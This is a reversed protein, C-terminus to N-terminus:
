SQSGQTGAGSLRGPEIPFSFLLRVHQGLGQVRETAGSGIRSRMSDLGLPEGSRFLIQVDAGASIPRPIEAYRLGCYIQNIGKHRGQNVIRRLESPMGAASPSRTSESVEEICIWENRWPWCWACFDNLAELSRSLWGARLSDLGTKAKVRPVM